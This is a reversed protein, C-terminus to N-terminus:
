GGRELARGEGRRKQVPLNLAKGDVKPHRVIEAVEVLGEVLERTRADNAADAPGEGALPMEGATKPTGIVHSERVRPFKVIPARFHAQFNWV